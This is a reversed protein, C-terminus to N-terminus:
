CRCGLSLLSMLRRTMILPHESRAWFDRPLEIFNELRMFGMPQVRQVLLRDTIWSEAPCLDGMKPQCFLNATKM